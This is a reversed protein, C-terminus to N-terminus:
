NTPNAVDIRNVAFARRLGDVDLADEMLDAAALVATELDGVDGLWKAETIEELWRYDTSDDRLRALAGLAMCRAAEVPDSMTKTPATM